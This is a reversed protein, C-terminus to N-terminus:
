NGAIDDGLTFVERYVKEFNEGEIKTVVTYKGSELASIDFRRQVSGQELTTAAYNERGEDDIIEITVSTEDLCLMTFDLKDHNVMIAPAFVQVMKENIALGDETLAIPQVITRAGDEVFLFYDGAPLNVLNYKRAFAEENKVRDSLLVVDHVDKLAVHVFGSEANEIYLAFSKQGADVITVEPASTAFGLTASLCILLAAFNKMMPKM